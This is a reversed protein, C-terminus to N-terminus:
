MSANLELLEACTEEYDSSDIGIYHNTINSTLIYEDNWSMLVKLDQKMLEKDKSAESIWGILEDLFSDRHIISFEHLEEERIKDNIKIGNISDETLIFKQKAM